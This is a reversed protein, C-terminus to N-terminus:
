SGSVTLDSWVENFAKRRAAHMQWEIRKIKELIGTDSRGELYAEVLKRILGTIEDEMEGVRGGLLEDMRGALRNLLPLPKDDFFGPSAYGLFSLMSCANGTVCIFERCVRPSAGAKYLICDGTADLFCCARSHQDCWMRRGESYDPIAALTKEQLSRSDNCLTYRIKDSGEVETYYQGSYKRIKGLVYDSVESPEAMRTTEALDIGESGMIKEVVGTELPVGMGKRGDFHCCAKCDQIRCWPHYVIDDLLEYLSERLDHIFIGTTDDLPLDNSDLEGNLWSLLFYKRGVYDRVSTM